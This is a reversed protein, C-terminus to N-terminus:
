LKWLIVSTYSIFSEEEAAEVVLAAANTGEQLRDKLWLKLRFFKRVKTLTSLAGQGERLCASNILIFLSTLVTSTKAELSEFLSRLDM